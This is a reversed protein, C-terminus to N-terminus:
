HIASYQVRLRKRENVKKGLRGGGGGLRGLLMHM